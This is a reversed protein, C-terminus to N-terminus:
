SLVLHIPKLHFYLCAADRYFDALENGVKFGVFEVDPYKKQYSKLSPGGGVVVKPLDSEM